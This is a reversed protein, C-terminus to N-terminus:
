VSSYDESPNATSKLCVNQEIKFFTDHDDEEGEHEDGSPEKKDYSKDSNVTENIGQNELLMQEHAESQQHTKFTSGMHFTKNCPKCFHKKHNTNTEAHKKQLHNALGRESNYYAECITCPYSKEGVLAEHYIKIHREVDRKLIFVKKCVYCAHKDEPRIDLNEDTKEHIKLM